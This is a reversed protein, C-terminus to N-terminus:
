VAESVEEPLSVSLTKMNGEELALRVLEAVDETLLSLSETDELALRVPESVREELPVSLADLESVALPLSLVECEEAELPLLTSRWLGVPEAVGEELPLSLPVLKPDSDGERVHLPDVFDGLEAEEELSLSVKFLEEKIPELSVTM